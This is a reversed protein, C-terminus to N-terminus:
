QISQAYCAIDHLEDFIREVCHASKVRIVSREDDQPLEQGRDGGLGVDQRYARREIARDEAIRRHPAGGSDHQAAWLTGRLRPQAFTDHPHVAALVCMISAQKRRGELARFNFLESIPDDL